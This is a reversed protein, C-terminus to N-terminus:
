AGRLFPFIHERCCVLSNAETKVATKGLRSVVSPWLNSCPGYHEDGLIGLNWMVVTWLKFGESGAVCDSRVEAKVSSESVTDQRLFAQGPM